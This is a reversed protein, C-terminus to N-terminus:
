QVPPMAEDFSVGCSPCNGPQDKVAARAAAGCRPCRSMRQATRVAVFTVVSATLLLTLWAGVSVRILVVSLGALVAWVVFAAYTSRRRVQQRITM